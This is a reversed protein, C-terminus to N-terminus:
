ILVLIMVLTQGWKGSEMLERIKYTKKREKALKAGPEKAERSKRSWALYM